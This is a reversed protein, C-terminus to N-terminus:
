IAEGKRSNDLLRKFRTNTLQFALSTKSDNEGREKYEQNLKEYILKNVAPLFKEPQLSLLDHGKSTSGFIYEPLHGAITKGNSRVIAYELISKMERYNGPYDYKLLKEFAKETFPPSKLEYGHKVAISLLFTKFATEAREKNLPAVSPIRIPFDHIRNFLDERFHGEKIEHLLDKNTACIIRANGKRDTGLEGLRQYTKDNLFRLLAIQAESATISAPLANLASISHLPSLSM